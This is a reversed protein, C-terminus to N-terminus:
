PMAGEPVAGLLDIAELLIAGAQENTTAKAEPSGAPPMEGKALKTRISKLADPALPTKGDLVLGGKPEAGSHCRACSTVMQSAPAQVAQPQAPSQAAQLKQYQQFAEFESKFQKYQLFSQYDPDSRKEAEVIAAARLPQGVFYYTQVLPQAYTQRYDGYGGAHAAGNIIATAALAMFIRTM